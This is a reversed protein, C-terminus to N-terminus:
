KNLWRLDWVVGREGLQSSVISLSRGKPFDYWYDV